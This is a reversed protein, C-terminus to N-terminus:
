GERVDPFGAPAPADPATLAMAKFLSGMGDPDILRNCGGLLAEAQAPTADRMLRGIRLEIGLSKLFDRQAVPGHVIAGSARAADAVAAFDVHATLDVAGPTALVSEFRHRRMAQLTDGHASPFYGYDIFLAAGGDRVLREGISRAQSSAAPRIERIAGPPVAGGDGDDACLRPAMGASPKVGERSPRAFHRRPPVAAPAADRVFVLTRGDESLGVRREHWGDPTYEFQRIPLADLFENAVLLLPGPPLSSIDDHWSPRAADLTAAQRARLVPSTEVLHLRLARGFAPLRAAARLADAMLTGRGPGLEALIFPDPEGMRQWLDVCWLGVLEGFIQSIEPATIFDGGAGFPDRTVYYGHEPHGLAMAMFDAVTLPGEKRIRDRILGDLPTPNASM